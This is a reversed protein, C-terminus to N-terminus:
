EWVNPGGLLKVVWAKLALWWFTEGQNQFSEIVDIGGGLLKTAWRRGGVHVGCKWNAWSGLLKAASCHAPHGLASRRCPGRMKMEGLRWAAQRGFLAQSAWTLRLGLVRAIVVAVAGHWWAAQRCPGVVIAGWAVLCSSSRIGCLEQWVAQCFCMMTWCKWIWRWAPRVTLWCTCQLMPLWKQGDCRHAFDGLRLQHVRPSEESSCKTGGGWIPSVKASHPGGLM